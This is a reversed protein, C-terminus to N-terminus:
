KKRDRPPQPDNRYSSKQVITGDRRHIVLASQDKISQLRGWSEAADKTPFRKSARDAGGKKVSWGGDISPVVHHSKPAKAIMTASTDSDRFRGNPGHIVHEGSAKDAIERGRDIAAAQTNHVSSSRDIGSRVSTRRGDRVVTHVNKSKAM